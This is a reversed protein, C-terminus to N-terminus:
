WIKIFVDHVVEESIEKDHTYSFSLLFLKKYQDRYLKDFVVSDKLSIKLLIQNDNEQPLFPECM